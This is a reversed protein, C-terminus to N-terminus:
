STKTPETVVPTRYHDIPLELPAGAKALEDKFIRSFQEVVQHRPTAKFKPVETNIRRAIKRALKL